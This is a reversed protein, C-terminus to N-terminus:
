LDQRKFINNSEPMLDTRISPQLRSRCAPCCAGMFEVFVVFQFSFYFTGWRGRVLTLEMPSNSHLHALGAGASFIRELLSIGGLKKASRESKNYRDIVSFNRIIEKDLFVGWFVGLFSM